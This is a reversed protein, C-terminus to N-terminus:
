RRRALAWELHDAVERECATKSLSTAIVTGCSCATQWSALAGPESAPRAVPEPVVHGLEVGDTDGWRVMEIASCSTDSSSVGQDTIGMERMNRIIRDTAKRRLEVYRDFDVDHLKRVIAQAQDFTMM